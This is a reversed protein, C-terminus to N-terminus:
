KQENHEGELEKIEDRFKAAQEYEQADVAKQLKDKLEDLQKKKKDEETIEREPTKGCHSARGHIREISPLLQKRFTDYCQACGM